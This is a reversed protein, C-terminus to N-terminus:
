DVVKKKLWTRWSNLAPRPQGNEDYLGADRWGTEQTTSGLRAVLQDYDRLTFWIVFGARWKESAALLGDVFKQQNLPNTEFTSFSRGLDASFHQATCGTEAVVLPKPSMSFLENFVDDQVKEGLMTQRPYFSLAYYDSLTLLQMVALRQQVCDNGEIFGELMPGGAVTSFIPLDPYLAKLERYIYEHFELYETWLEPQYLYLLNTQISMAFYDPHFFGIVRKCYNLYAERVPEDKFSYTNWPGPLPMNDDSGRYSALGIHSNNIPTVSVYIKQGPHGKSKRFNWDALINRSFPDGSLAEPWPVGSDFHHNIIDAETALKSYAYEAAPLSIKYPIPTFGMRFHRTKVDDERSCGALFLGAVLM